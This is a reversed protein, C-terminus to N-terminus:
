HCVVRRFYTIKGKGSAMSGEQEFALLVKFCFFRYGVFEVEAKKAKKM